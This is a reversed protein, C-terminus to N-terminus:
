IFKVPIRMCVKEGEELLRWIIQNVDSKVPNTVAGSGPAPTSPPLAPTEAGSGPVPTGSQEDGGETFVTAAPAESISSPVATSYATDVDEDPDLLSRQSRPRPLLAVGTHPPASFKTTRIIFDDDFVLM